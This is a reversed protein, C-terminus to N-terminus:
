RKPQANLALLATEHDWAALAPCFALPLAMEHDVMHPFAPPAAGCDHEHLRLAASRYGDALSDNQQRERKM